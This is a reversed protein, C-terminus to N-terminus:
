GNVKQKPPAGCKNCFKDGKGLSSGCYSCDSEKEVLKPPDLVLDICRWSRGCTPCDLHKDWDKWEDDSYELLTGCEDCQAILKDPRYLIRSMVIGVKRHASKYYEKCVDYDM